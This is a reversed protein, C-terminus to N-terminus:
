ELLEPIVFKLKTMLEESPLPANMEGEIDSVFDSNDSFLGGDFEINGICYNIRTKCNAFNRARAFKFNAISSNATDGSFAALSDVVYLNAADM